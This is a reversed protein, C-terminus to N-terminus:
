EEEEEVTKSNIAIIIPECGLPCILAMVDGPRYVRYLDDKSRPDVGTPFHEIRRELMHPCTLTPM